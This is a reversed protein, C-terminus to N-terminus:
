AALEEKMLDRMVFKQIKGTVTMPYKDRAFELKLSGGTAPVPRSLAEEM